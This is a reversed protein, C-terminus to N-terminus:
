VVLDHGEGEGVPGDSASLHEFHTPPLGDHLDKLARGPDVDRPGMDLEGPRTHLQRNTLIHEPPDEIPTPIGNILSWLDKSLLIQIDITLVTGREREGKITCEPHISSSNSCSISAFHPPWEFSSPALAGQQAPAGMLGYERM